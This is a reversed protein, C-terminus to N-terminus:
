RAMEGKVEEGVLEDDEEIIANDMEIDQMMIKIITRILFIIAIIIMTMIITMVNIIERMVRIDDDESDMQSQYCNNQYYGQHLYHNIVMIDIIINVMVIIIIIINVQNIDEAVPLAQINQVLASSLVIFALSGM